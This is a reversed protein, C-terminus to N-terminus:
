EQKKHRPQKMARNYDEPGTIDLVPKRQGSLTGRDNPGGDLSKPSKKCFLSIGQPKSALFRRNSYLLFFSDDPFPPNKHRQKLQLIELGQGPHEVVRM